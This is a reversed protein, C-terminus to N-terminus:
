GTKVLLDSIVKFSKRHSASLIVIQFESIIPNRFFLWKVGGLFPREVPVKMEHLTTGSFYHKKGNVFHLFFAM